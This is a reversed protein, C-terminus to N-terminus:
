DFEPTATPLLSDFLASARAHWNRLPEWAEPPTQWWALRASLMYSGTEVGYSTGDLGITSVALFPPLEIAQLDAVLEDFVSHELPVESGYTTPKLRGTRGQDWVIRRLFLGERAQIAAWSRYPDFSPYCWIRLLVRPLKREALGPYREPHELADPIKM